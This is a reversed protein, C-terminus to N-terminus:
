IGWTMADGIADVHKIADNLYFSFPISINGKAVQAATIDAMSPRTVTFGPTFTTGDSQDPMIGGQAQGQQLSKEMNKCVQEIGPPNYGIKNQNMFLTALNKQMYDRQWYCFRINGIDEGDGVTGPYTVAVDSGYDEYTNGNLSAILQYEDETFNDTRVGSLTKIAWTESGPTMTLCRGAQAADVYNSEIRTVTAFSGAYEMDSLYQMIGGLPWKPDSSYVAGGDDVLAAMKDNQAETWDAIQTLLSPNRSTCFQMFWENNQNKISTIVQPFSAAKVVSYGVSVDAGEVFVIRGQVQFKNVDNQDATIYDAATGTWETGDWTATVVTDANNVTVVVALAALVNDVSTGEDNLLIAVSTFAASIDAMVLSNPAPKQDFYDNAATLAAGMVGAEIVDNYEAYTRTIAAVDSTTISEFTDMTVGYFGPAPTLEIGVGFVAYSAVRTQRTINVNFLRSLNAM